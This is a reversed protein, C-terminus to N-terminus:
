HHSGGSWSSHETNNREVGEHVNAAGVTKGEVSDLAVILGHLVADTGETSQKDVKFIQLDLQSGTNTLVPGIGELEARTDGWFSKVHGTLQSLGEIKPALGEGDYAIPESM